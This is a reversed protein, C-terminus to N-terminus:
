TILMYLGTCILSVGIIKQVLVGRGLEEKLISPFKTSIFL